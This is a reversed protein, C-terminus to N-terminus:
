DRYVFRVLPGNEMITYSADPEVAFTCEADFACDPKDFSLALLRQRLARECAADMSLEVEYVNDRGGAVAEGQDIERIRASRCLAVGTRASFYEPTGAPEPACGSLLAAAAAILLRPTPM